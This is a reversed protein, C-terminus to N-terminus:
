CFIGPSGASFAPKGPGKCAKMCLRQNKPYAELAEEQWPDPIVKFLERVMTAPSQRWRLMNQMARLEAPDPM